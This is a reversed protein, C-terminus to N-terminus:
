QTDGTQKTVKLIAKCIALPGTPASVCSVPQWAGTPDMVHYADPPIGSCCASSDIRELSVLHERFLGVEEAAQMAANWDTSPSWKFDDGTEKNLCRLAPKGDLWEPVIYCYSNLGPPCPADVVNYGVAEAVLKDTEPGAELADIDIDALNM